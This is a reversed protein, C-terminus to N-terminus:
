QEQEQSKTICKCRETYRFGRPGAWAEKSVWGSDKCTPCKYSAKPFVGFLWNRIMAIM